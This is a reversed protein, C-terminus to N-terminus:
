KELEQMLFGIEVTRAVDRIKSPNTKSFVRLSIAVHTEITALAEIVREDSQGIHDRLVRLASIMEEAMIATDCKARATKM